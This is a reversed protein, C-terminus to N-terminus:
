EPLQAEHLIQEVFWHAIPSYTACCGVAVVGSTHPRHTTFLAVQPSGKLAPM